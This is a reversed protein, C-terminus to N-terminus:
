EGHTLISVKKDPDALFLTRRRELELQLAIWTRPIPKVHWNTAVNKVTVNSKFRMGKASLKAVQIAACITYYTIGDEGTAVISGDPNTTIPM